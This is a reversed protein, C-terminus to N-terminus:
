TPTQKSLDKDWNRLFKTSKFYSQDLFHRVIPLYLDRYFLSFIQSDRLSNKIPVHYISIWLLCIQETGTMSNAVLRKFFIKDDESINSRKILDFLDSYITFYTQINTFFVDTFNEKCCTVLENQVTTTQLNKVNKFDNKLLETFKLSIILFIQNADYNINDKTLKLQYLNVQKQNLLSNFLSQFNNYRTENLQENHLKEALEVQKANAVRTEKLSTVQLWTSFAVACLAISSILTNLSGYIDGFAGFENFDKPLDYANILLKFILPFAIWLCIITGIGIGWALKIQFNTIKM